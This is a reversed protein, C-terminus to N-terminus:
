AIICTAYPYRSAISERPLNNIMRPVDSINSVGAPDCLSPLVYSSGLSPQNLTPVGLDGGQECTAHVDEVSKSPDVHRSASTCFSPIALASLLLDYSPFARHYKKTKHSQEWEHCRPM